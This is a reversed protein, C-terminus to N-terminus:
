ALASNLQQEPAPASREVERDSIMGKAKLLSLMEDAIKEAAHPAHWRSLENAMAARASENRFLDVILRALKGNGAETQDLIWAASADAYARANYYQHNDAAAPFPILIAPLRMAALEALSSAGARSVCVTAAGLAIDMETLFPQVVGAVRASEYAARVQELDNAGTLHLIQLDPQADRLAPLSDVVLKNIASAGQSGGVVLLVPRNPALGLAMRCSEPSSPQFQPRVPTGTTVVHRNQLRARASPFGVFVQNVFPAVLRNARGPISNSEHLFTSAGALKGALVPPASTFGGMGLVAAPRRRAFLERAARLSKAFGRAFAVWNGGQMGVAPLATWQSEPLMRVAQLDVEKQSVLLIAECDRRSLEDAVAMGPYLHGGTGGCAIAVLPKQLRASM